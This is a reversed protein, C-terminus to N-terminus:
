EELNINNKFKAYLKAKLDTLLKRSSSIEAELKSVEANIETLAKELRAEADEKPLDVYAEGLRYRFNM